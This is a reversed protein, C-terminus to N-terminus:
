LAGKASPTFARTVLIRLRRHVPGDNIFMLSGYRDRMPGGTIGMADFLTLGIGHVRTDHALQEVDGHRLVVRAGTAVDTALPGLSASERLTAHLSAGLNGFLDISAPM